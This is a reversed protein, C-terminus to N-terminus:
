HVIAYRDWCQVSSSTTPFAARWLSCSLSKINILWLCLLLKLKRATRASFWHLLKHAFVASISCTLPIQAVRYYKPLMAFNM